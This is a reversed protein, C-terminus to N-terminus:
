KEEESSTLSNTQTFSSGSSSSILTIIHAIESRQQLASTQPDKSSSTSILTSILLTNLVGPMRPSPRTPDPQIWEKPNNTLLGDDDNGGCWCSREALREGSGTRQVAWRRGGPRGRLAPQLTAFSIENFGFVLWSRSSHSCYMKGVLYDSRCVRVKRRPCCIKRFVRESRKEWGHPLTKALLLFLSLVCSQKIALAASHM